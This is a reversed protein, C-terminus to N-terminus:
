ERGAWSLLDRWRKVYGVVILHNMGSMVLRESLIEPDFTAIPTDKSYHRLTYTFMEEWSRRVGVTEDALCPRYRDILEGLTM